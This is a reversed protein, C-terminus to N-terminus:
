SARPRYRGGSSRGTLLAQDIRMAAEMVAFGLGAPGFGAKLANISVPRSGALGFGWRLTPGKLM